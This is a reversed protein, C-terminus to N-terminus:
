AIREAVTSAPTVRRSPLQTVFWLLAGGGAFVVALWDSFAQVGVGLTPAFIGLGIMVLCTIASLIALITVGVRLGRRRAVVSGAEDSLRLLGMGLWVMVALPLLHVIDIFVGFGSDLPQIFNGNIYGFGAMLLLISVVEMHPTMTSTTATTTTTTHAKM